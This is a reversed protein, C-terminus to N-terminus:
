PGFDDLALRKLHTQQGQQHLQPLACGHGNQDIGNLTFINRRRDRVRGIAKVMVLLELGDAILQRSLPVMAHIEPYTSAIMEDQRLGAERQAKNSIVAPAFLIM